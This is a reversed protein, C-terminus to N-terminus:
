EVSLKRAISPLTCNIKVSNQIANWHDFFEDALARALKHVLTLDPFESIFSNDKNVLTSHTDRFFYLNSVYPM